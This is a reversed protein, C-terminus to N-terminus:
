TIPLIDMFSLLDPTDVLSGDVDVGMGYESFKKIFRGLVYEYTEGKDFSTIYYAQCQVNGGEKCLLTTMNDVTYVQEITGVFCIPLDSDQTYGTKLIVSDKAKIKSLTDKSLNHVKITAVQNTSNSTGGYKIVADLQLPPQILLGGDTFDSTALYQPDTAAVVKKYLSTPLCESGEDEYGTSLDVVLSADKFPIIYLLYDHGFVKSM